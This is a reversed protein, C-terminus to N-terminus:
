QAGAPPKRWVDMLLVAGPPVAGRPTAVIGYDRVIFRWEFQDEAWQYLAGVPVSEIFVPGPILVDEADRIMSTINVGKTMDRLIDLMERGHLKSGFNLKIPEDLSKRIKDAMPRQVTMPIIPAEDPKFMMPVQKGGGKDESRLWEATKPHHKGILLDLEAEKVALDAKFKMMAARAASMEALPISGTKMLEKDREFRATAEDAAAKAARGDHHLMVVRNLVNVRARYLEAEAERMKAEAVRIDGNNKLAQAMLEELGAQEKRAQELKKEIQKQIEETQALAPGVALLLCGATSIAVHVRM